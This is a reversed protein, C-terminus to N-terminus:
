IYMDLKLINYDEFKFQLMFGPSNCNIKTDFRYEGSYDVSSVRSGTTQFTYVFGFYFNEDSFRIM